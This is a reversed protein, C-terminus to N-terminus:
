FIRWNYTTLDNFPYWMQPNDPNFIRMMTIYVAAILFLVGIFQVIGDVRQPPREAYWSRKKLKGFGRLDM